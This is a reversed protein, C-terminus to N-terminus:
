FGLDVMKNPDEFAADIQKTFATLEELPSKLILGSIQQLYQAVQQFDGRKNAEELLDFSRNIFMGREAFTKEMAERCLTFKSAIQALQVDAMRDYMKAQQACKYAETIRSVTDDASQILNVTNSVLNNSDQLLNQVANVTNGSLNSEYSEEEYYTIEQEM